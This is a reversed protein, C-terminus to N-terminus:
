RDYADGNRELHNRHGFARTAREKSLRMRNHQFNWRGLLCCRAVSSGNVRRVSSDPQAWRHNRPAWADRHTPPPRHTTRRDADIAWRARCEESRDRGLSGPRFPQRANPVFAPASSRDHLPHAPFALPRATESERAPDAWRRDHEIEASQVVRGSPTHAASRIRSSKPPVQIGGRCGISAGPAVDCASFDHWERGRLSRAEEQARGANKMRASDM